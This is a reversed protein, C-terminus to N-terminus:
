VNYLGKYWSVWEDVASDGIKEAANIVDKSTFHSFKKNNAILQKYENMSENLADNEPHHVVSFYVHKFKGSKELALGMLQNRWLQNMGGKFPCSAHTNANAFFSQHEETINWYERKLAHVNYCLNKDKIIEAYSKKCLEKTKNGDSKFSGCTTFEKETLKHEILWLCPEKDKNYYAIAIDSDTGAIASHDALLGSENNSNGDWYEIRFGKYLQDTALSEFDSKLLRLIENAKPHLLLPLFLNVNAAQSSVVHNFFEHLKFPYEEKHALLDTIISPYILPFKDHVSKPLIADYEYINVSGTNKDKKTYIGVEKTINKWKWNILHVYMDKQFKTLGGSVTGKKTLSGPLKYTKGDISEEIM